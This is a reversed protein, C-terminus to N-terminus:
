YDQAVQEKKENFIKQKTEIEKEAEQAKDLLKQRRNKREELKKRLLESQYEEDQELALGIKGLNQDFQALMQEQEEASLTVGMRKMKDMLDRKRHDM